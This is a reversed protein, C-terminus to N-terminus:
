RDNLFGPFNLLFATDVITVLCIIKKRHTPGIRKCEFILFLSGKKTPFMPGARLSLIHVIWPKLYPAAKSLSGNNSACSRMVVATLFNRYRNLSIM